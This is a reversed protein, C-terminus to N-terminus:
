ANLAAALATAASADADPTIHAYIDATVNISAHGMRRSVVVLPVGALIMLTGGTHRLGHPTLRPVGAALCAATLWDRVQDASLRRGSATSIVLNLDHWGPGAALRAQLQATRQRRLAAVTEPSVIIDRIGAPTKPSAGTVRQGAANRTVTRRVHITARDLDLDAWTLELLEGIRLQADLLVRWIAEHPSGAAAAIFQVAEDRSGSRLPTERRTPVRPLAIGHAPNRPLHGWAVAQALAADLSGHTARITRIAYRRSLDNIWHQIQQPQLRGIPIHAIPQCRKLNTRHQLTTHPHRSPATAALWDTLYDGLTTITPEIYLGRRRDTLDAQMAATALDETLYGRRRVQQRKGSPGRGLELVYEWREGSATRYPRTSGNM